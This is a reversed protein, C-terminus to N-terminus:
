VDLEFNRRIARRLAPSTAAAETVRTISSDAQLRKEEDERVLELVFVGVACGPKGEGSGVRLGVM